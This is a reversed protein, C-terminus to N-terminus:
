CCGLSLATSATLDRLRAGGAGAVAGASGTVSLVRLLPVASSVLKGFEDDDLSPLCSM